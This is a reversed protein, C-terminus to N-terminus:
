DFRFLPVRDWDELYESRNDDGQAPYLLSASDDGKCPLEWNDLLREVTSVWSALFPTMSRAFLAAM